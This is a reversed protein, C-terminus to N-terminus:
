YLLSEACIKMLRKRMTHVAQGDILASPVAKGCRRLVSAFFVHVKDEADAIHHCPKNKDAEAYREHLAFYGHVM